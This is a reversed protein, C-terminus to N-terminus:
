ATSEGAVEVSPAEGEVPLYLSAFLFLISLPFLSLFSPSLSLPFLPLFTASSLSFLALSIHALSGHQM